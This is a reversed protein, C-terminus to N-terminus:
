CRGDSCARNDGALAIIAEEAVGFTTAPETEEAKTRRRGNGEKKIKRGRKQEGKLKQRPSNGKPVV